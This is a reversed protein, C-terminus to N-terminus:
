KKSLEISRNSAQFVAKKICDEFSFDNNQNMFISLAAETTGKPSTVQKRLTSVNIGTKDLLDASGSFTNQVLEKSVEESLGAEIGAKILSEVFYYFYAPGSGSLATAVHMDDEQDLWIIKGVAKFLSEVLQSNGDTLHNSSSLATIGKGIQSPTNPMARFIPSETKLKSQIVKSSVGAMASVIITEESIYSQYESAIGSFKQPKVALFVIDARFNSPLKESHNFYHCQDFSSDTLATPKVIYTQEPSLIHQNLWGKLLASGM